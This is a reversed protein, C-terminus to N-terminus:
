RAKKAAGRRASAKRRTIIRLQIIRVAGSIAVLLGGAVAAILLAIGQPITGNWGFFHVEAAGQNQLIFIILLILLLLGAITAVWVVGARTVASELGPEDIPAPAPDAQPVPQVGTGPEPQTYNDAENGLAPATRDEPEVPDISM